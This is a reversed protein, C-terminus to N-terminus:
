VWWSWGGVMWKRTDLDRIYAFYHGGLASGSHVLVGYLEYLAPGKAKLLADMDPTDTYPIANIANGSSNGTRYM